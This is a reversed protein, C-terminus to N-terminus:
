SDADMFSVHILEDIISALLLMWWGRILSPTWAQIPLGGAECPDFIGWGGPNMAWALCM